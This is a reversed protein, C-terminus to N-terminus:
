RATPREGVQDNLGWDYERFEVECPECARLLAAASTSLYPEVYGVLSQEAEPRESQLWDLFDEDYWDFISSLTITGAAPDILVNREESIFLQTERALQGQLAEATFAERPLRPCSISACNLAFHIRPDAFRKRILGMELEYLNTKKGGLTVQQLYFFGALRPLFFLAPSRVDKVSEIPYHRLVTELAAANYANIWYALRADASPFLAPDSDPSIRALQAYYADLQAPDRALGAYDVRGKEDVFRQLVADLDTHSFSAPPAPSPAGDATTVPNINTCAAGHLALILSFLRFTM